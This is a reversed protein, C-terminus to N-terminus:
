KAVTAKPKRTPKARESKRTGGAQEYQTSDPGYIARFGSKTRTVLDSLESALSDRKNKLATLEMDRTEIEGLTSGLGDKVEKFKALTISGLKFDTNAEWVQTIRQSDELVQSSNIITPM